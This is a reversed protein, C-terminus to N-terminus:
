KPRKFSGKHMQNVLRTAPVIPAHSFLSGDSIRAVPRTHALSCQAQWPVQLAFTLKRLQLRIKVGLWLPCRLRVDLRGNCSRTTLGPSGGHPGGSSLLEEVTSWLGLGLEWRTGKQKMVREYEERDAEFLQPETRFGNDYNRFLSGPTYQTFSQRTEGEFNPRLTPDHALVGMQRLHYYDYLRPFFLKLSESQHAAIRQIATSGLLASLTKDHRGRKHALEKKVFTGHQARERMTSGADACAADWAADKPKGVCVAFIKNTGSETLIVTDYLELREVTWSRKSGTGASKAEYGSSKTPLNRVDLNSATVTASEVYKQLVEPRPAERGQQAGEDKLKKRHAPRRAKSRVTRSSPGPKRPAGPTSTSSAVQQRKSSHSGSHRPQLESPRKQGHMPSPSTVPHAPPEAVKRATAPAKCNGSLPTALPSAGPPCAPPIQKVNLARSNLFATSPASDFAPAPTTLPPPSTSTLHM